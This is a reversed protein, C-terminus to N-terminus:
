PKPRVVCSPLAKRLMERGEESTQTAELALDRLKTLGKLHELGADTINTHDLILRGLNTMEGLHEMGKHGVATTGLWLGNLNKLVKLHKLGADTIKTQHLQLDRLAVLGELHVLQEDTIPMAGIYLFELRDLTRIESLLESPVKFQSGHLDIGRLRHFVPTRGRIAIPIWSPGCDKWRVDGYLSNVERVIRQERIYPIMVLMASYTIAILIAGVFIRGKHAWVFSTVTAIHTPDKEM